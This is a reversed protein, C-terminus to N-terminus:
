TRAEREADPKLANVIRKPAGKSEALRSLRMRNFFSPNRGHSDHPNRVRRDWGHVTHISVEAGVAVEEARRCYESRLESYAEWFDM